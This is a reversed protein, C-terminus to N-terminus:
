CPKFYDFPATTDPNVTRCIGLSFRPAAQDGAGSIQPGERMSPSSSDTSAMKYGLSSEPSSDAKSITLLSGVRLARPGAGYM